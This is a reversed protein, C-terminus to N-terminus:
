RTGRRTRIVVAGARAGMGFRTTADMGSLIQISEVTSAPLQRLLSPEVQIHDVVVLPGQSLSFSGEGRRGLQGSGVAPTEAPRLFSGSREIVEWTTRVNMRRVLEATILYGQEPRPTTPPQQRPTCGPIAAVLHAALMLLWLFAAHSPTSVRRGPRLLISMM